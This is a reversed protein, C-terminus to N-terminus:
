FKDLDDCSKSKNGTKGISDRRGVHVVVNGVKIDKFMAIAEAHTKNELPVGNIAIIEDGERLKENEAAQGSQFITKVFIGLNGKPSDRGGVISFGLSKQGPGKQFTVTFMSLSLSKPRKVTANSNNPTAAVNSRNHDVVSQRRRPSIGDFQCSFKRMGTVKNRIKACNSTQSKENSVPTTAIVETKNREIEPMSVQREPMLSKEVINKQRQNIIINKKPLNKPNPQLNDCNTASKADDPNRCIVIEVHSDKNNLAERAEQITLGKLRKDNVKILEDGVHFRGDRHIAGGPEIHSILYPSFHAGGDQREIYIGLENSDDKVVRFVKFQKEMLTQSFSQTPSSAGHTLKNELFRQYLPQPTTTVGPSTLSALSVFNTTKPSAVQDNSRLRTDNNSKPLPKCKNCVLSPDEFLVNEKSAGCSLENSRRRNIGFVSKVDGRRIGMNIKCNRKRNFLLKDDDIELPSPSRREISKSELENNIKSKLNNTKPIRSPSSQDLKNQDSTDDLLSQLNKEKILSKDSLESMSRQITKSYPSRFGELPKPDSIETKNLKKDRSGFSNNRNKDNNKKHPIIANIKDNSRSKFTNFFSKEVTSNARRRNYTENAKVESIDTKSSSKSHLINVDNKHIRRDRNDQPKNNEFVDEALDCSNEVISSTNSLSRTVIKRFLPPLEFNNSKISSRPSDNTTRTSDSEYGSEDAKILLLNNLFNYLNNVALPLPDSERFNEKEESCQRVVSDLTKCSDNVKTKSKTLGKKNKYKQTFEENLKKIPLNELSVSKMDKNNNIEVIEFRDLSSSSNRFKNNQINRWDNKTLQQFVHFLDDYSLAKLQEKNNILIDLDEFLEEELNESIIRKRALTKNRKSHNSKGNQNMLMQNLEYLDEIGKQCESKVWDPNTNRTKNNSQASAVVNSRGFLNKLSEVRSIRRNRAIPPLGPTAAKQVAKGPSFSQKKHRSPSNSLIESSDSRKMQEWKRGVKRGWTALGKRHSKPSGSIPTRSGKGAPTNQGSNNDYANNLCNNDLDDQDEDNAIPSLSVLQPSPDSCRRKFLRM